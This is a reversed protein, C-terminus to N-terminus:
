LNLGSWYDNLNSLIALLNDIMAISPVNPNLFLIVLFIAFIQCALIKMLTNHKTGSAVFENAM